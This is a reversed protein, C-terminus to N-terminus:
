VAQQAQWAAERARRAEARATASAGTQSAEFLVVDRPVICMIAGRALAKHDDSLGLVATLNNRALAALGELDYKAFKLGPDSVDNCDKDINLSFLRAVEAPWRGNGYRARHEAQEQVRVIGKVEELSLRERQGFTWEFDGLVFCGLMQMQNEKTLMGFYDFNGKGNFYVQKGQRICERRALAQCLLTKGQGSGGLFFVSKKYVLEVDEGPMVGFIQAITLEQLTNNAALHIFRLSDVATASIGQPYIPGDDYSMISLGVRARFEMFDKAWVALVKLSVQFPSATKLFVALTADALLDGFSEPSHQLLVDKLEERTLAKKNPDVRDPEVISMFSGALVVGSVEMIQAAQLIFPDKRAGPAGVTVSRLRADVLDLDPPLTLRSGEFKSGAHMYLVVIAPGVSVLHECQLLSGHLQEAVKQFDVVPSSHEVVMMRWVKGRADCESLELKQDSLALGARVFFECTVLRGTKVSLLVKDLQRTVPIQYRTLLEALPDAPSPKVAVKIHSVANFRSICDADFGGYFNCGDHEYSAHEAGMGRFSQVLTDLFQREEHMWTYCFYSVHHREGGPKREELWAKQEATAHLFIQRMLHDMDKQLSRLFDNALVNFEGDQVLSVQNDAAWKNLGGGNSLVLVVEKAKEKDVGLGKMVLSRFQDRNECYDRVSAFTHPIEFRELLKPIASFLMNVADVDTLGTEHRIIHRLPRPLKFASIGVFQKPVGRDLDAAVEPPVESLHVIGSTRRGMLGPCTRQNTYVVTVVGMGEFIDHARDIFSQLVEPITSNDRWDSTNYGKVVPRLKLGKLKQLVEGIFAINVPEELIEWEQM